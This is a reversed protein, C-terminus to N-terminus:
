RTSIYDFKRIQSIQTSVDPQFKTEVVVIALVISPLRLSSFPSNSVRDVGVVSFTLFREIASVRGAPDLAVAGSRWQTNVAGYYMYTSRAVPRLSRSQTYIAGDESTREYFSHTATLVISLALYIAIPAASM